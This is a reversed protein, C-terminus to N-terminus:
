GKTGTPKDDDDDPAYHAERDAIRNILDRGEASSKIYNEFLKSVTKSERLDRPLNKLLLHWGELGYAGAVLDAMDLSIRHRGSLMNSISSQRKGIKKGLSHESDGAIEMLMRTNAIVIERTTQKKKMGFIISGASFWYHNSLATLEYM